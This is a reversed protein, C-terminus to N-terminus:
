QRLPLRLGKELIKGISLFKQDLELVYLVDLILKTSSYSGIAITVKGKSPVCDGDDGVCPQVGDQRLIIEDEYYETKLFDWIEKPWKFTM